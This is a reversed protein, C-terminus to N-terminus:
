VKWIAPLTGDGWTGTIDAIEVRYGDYWEAYRSKAERHVDDKSFEALSEKTEFYYIVRIQTGDPSHWKEKGKFGPNTEARAMIEDDLKKFDGNSNNHKFIFTASLM